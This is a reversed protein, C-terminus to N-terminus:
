RCPGTCPERLRWCKRSMRSCPPSTWLREAVNLLRWQPFHINMEAPAETGPTLQFVMEVGDIVRKDGTKAVTGTPPILTIRGRSLKRGLGVDVQATEGPALHSGCMYQSRRSMANGAAVNESVASEMFGPPALISVRSGRVDAEDVVGRVGGLTARSNTSGRAELRARVDPRELAQRLADHIRAM